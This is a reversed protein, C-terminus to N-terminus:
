LFSKPLLTFSTWAMLIWILLWCVLDSASDYQLNTRKLACGQGPRTVTCTDLSSCRSAVFSTVRPAVIFLGPIIATMVASTSAVVTDPHPPPPAFVSVWVSMRVVVVPCSSKSRLFAYSLPAIDFFSYSFCFFLINCRFYVTVDAQRDEATDKGGRETPPGLGVQGSGASLVSGNGRPGGPM